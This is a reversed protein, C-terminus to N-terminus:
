LIGRSHFHSSCASKMGNWIRYIHHAQCSSRRRGTIHEALLDAAALTKTTDLNVIVILTPAHIESVRDIAAPEIQREGGVEASKM